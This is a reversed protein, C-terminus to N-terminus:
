TAGTAPHRRGWSAVGVGGRRCIAGGRAWPAPTMVDRRGGDRLAAATASGSRGAPGSREAESPGAAWREAAARAGAAGRAGGGRRRAGSGLRPAHAPRWRNGAVPVARMRPPGWCREAGRAHASPSLRARGGRMRVPKGGDTAITISGRCPRPSPPPGPRERSRAGPSRLYNGRGGPLCRPSGPRLRATRRGGHELPLPPPGPRRGTGWPRLRALGRGSPVRRAAASSSTRPEPQLKCSNVLYGRFLLTYLM